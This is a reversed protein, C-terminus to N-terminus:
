ETAYQFAKRTPDKPRIVLMAKQIDIHQIEIDLPTEPQGSAIGARNATRQDKPPVTIQVGELLVYDVVKKKGTVSAIDVNFNLKHIALFPDASGQRKILLDEGDVAVRAGRERRLILGIA